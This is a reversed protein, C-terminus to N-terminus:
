RGLDSRYRDIVSRISRPAGPGHRRGQEPRDTWLGALRTGCQPCAGAPTLQYDLIVYGYRAIVRTRCNPCFTHEYEGVQGPLNGAYVYRLGAAQGIEAARILTAATTDDPDTMHYDQHFATVHWPIDLSLGALFRAAETLEQPSDNFGPIM